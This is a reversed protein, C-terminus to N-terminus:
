AAFKNDHATSNIIEDFEDQLHRIREIHRRELQRQKKMRGKKSESVALAIGGATMLSLVDCTFLIRMQNQSLTEFLHFSLATIIFGSILTVIFIIAGSIFQKKNKNM